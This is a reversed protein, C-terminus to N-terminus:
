PPVIKKVKQMLDDLKFPKTLYQRAGAQIGQIVDKPTTRATLFVIPISRAKPSAKAKRAVTLGDAGPMMVDCLMLDPTPDAEIRRLAALGDACTEVRYLSGLALELMKRVSEDDEVVLILKKSM